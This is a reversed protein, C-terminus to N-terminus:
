HLERHIPFSDSNVSDPGYAQTQGATQNINRAYVEEVIMQDYPPDDRERYKYKKAVVLFLTLGIFALGSVISLYGFGCNAKKPHRTSWYDPLSFPLLLFASLLQFVGKIAFFMGVLLGKMSHPSQASIFEFTTTTILIPSIGILVNPIVHVAWSLNLVKPHDSTVDLNFMCYTEGGDKEHKYVDALSDVNKLLLHGLLDTISMIFVGLFLLGGGLFLRTLIKPVCRRLFSYILWIYIPLGIVPILEGLTGSELILWRATCETFAPGLGTHLAFSPFVFNSVPVELIYIPGLAMLVGLIRLFSKVDEVQKTLFPGGYRRKAFDIRTPVEGGDFTFASRQLPYSHKKAFRLVNVVMKYPNDQGPESYFWDHKYCSFVLLMSFCVTCAIPLSYLGYFLGDSQTCAYASFLIRSFPSTFTGAWMAWHVFIGLYESPAEHLQDLGLQIFNAQFGSLGIVFLVFALVVTVILLDKGVKILESHHHIHHIDKILTLTCAVAFGIFSFMLIFMSVIVAKYRGCWIDAMFGSLPYLLMVLALCVYPILVNVVVNDLKHGKDNALVIGIAVTADNALTYATGVIASWFLILVAAKSPLCLHRPLACAQSFRERLNPIAVPSLLPQTEHPSGVPQTLISSNSSRIDM